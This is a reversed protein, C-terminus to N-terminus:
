EQLINQNILETIQFTSDKLCITREGFSVGSVRMSSGGYLEENENFSLLFNFVLVIDQNESNFALTAAGRASLRDESWELTNQNPYPVNLSIAKQSKGDFTVLQPHFAVESSGNEKHTIKLSELDGWYNDPYCITVTRFQASTVAARYEVVSKSCGALAASLALSILMLYKM